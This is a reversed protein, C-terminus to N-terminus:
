QCIELRIPFKPSRRFPRRADIKPSNRTPPGPVYRESSQLNPITPALCAAVPGSTHIADKSKADESKRAPKALGPGGALADAILRPLNITADHVSFQAVPRRGQGVIYGAHRQSCIAPLNSGSKGPDRKRRDAGVHPAPAYYNGIQCRVANLSTVM